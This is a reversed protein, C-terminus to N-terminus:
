RFKLEVDTSASPDTQTYVNYSIGDVSVTSKTFSNTYSINNIEDMISTLNGLEAPYAYVFCCLIIITLFIKKM